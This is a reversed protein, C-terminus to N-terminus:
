LNKRCPYCKFTGDPQNPTDAYNFFNNCKTCSLGPEALAAKAMEIEEINISIDSFMEDFAEDIEKCFNPDLLDEWDFDQYM